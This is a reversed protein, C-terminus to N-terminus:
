LVGAQVHRAGRLTRHVSETQLFMADGGLSELADRLGAIEEDRRKKRDEYSSPKAVCDKKISAFYELVASLEQHAGDKDSKLEAVSKDYSIYEAKKAKVDETKTAKAIQNENTAETYEAQASEETSIMEAVGKSFDSEVVELMGIIGSGAGSSSGQDSSDQAYYDRLVKLANKIGNLGQELVPKNKHYVAKEESRLKDMSAQNQALAALEKELRAAESKLTKSESSMVDIQTKLKEIAWEKDEQSTATQAMEKDCYDKKTAASEAQKQLKDVMSTIMSKVKGFPDAGSRSSSQIAREIHNALEIMAKEHHAMALRRVMHLAKSGESKAKSSVQVFSTQALDYTQSTAGGTSSVIIKKAEALAKLEENRSSTAEEFSTAKDLCERHLEALEKEDESHDKKTTLLNREATAKTEGTAAKSKKADGMERTLTKIKDTLSQSLMDFANKANRESNRADELQKQTKELLAGLTDVINGGKSKYAAASPAGMDDEDESSSESSGQQVLATLKAADESNVAEADSMTQLVQTIALASQQQVLSAGSGEREVVTIAREITSITKMLAAQEASFGATEKARLATAAKLESDADSNSSAADNIKEDIVADDASAKEITASLQGASAKSTKIEQHLEKSRDECMEAFESYLKQAEQGEQIINTQMGSIMQVVKNIPNVASGSSVGLLLAVVLLTHAM